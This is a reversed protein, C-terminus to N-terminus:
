DLYFVHDNDNYGFLEAYRGWQLLNSFTDEANENPLFEALKDLVQERSAERDEQENLFETLKQFIPLKAIQQTILEKKEAIKLHTVKEGLPLLVVDGGPTNVLNLLEAARIVGLTDGLEMSLEKALKYIDEKGGKSKLLETLGLIESIDIDPIVLQNQPPEAFDDPTSNSSNMDGEGDCPLIM